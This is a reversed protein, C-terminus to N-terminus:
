WENGGCLILHPSKVVVLTTICEKIIEHLSKWFPWSTLSEIEGRWDESLASCCAVWRTRYYRLCDACCLRGCTWWLISARNLFHIQLQSSLPLEKKCCWPPCFKLSALFEPSGGVHLKEVKVSHCKPGSLEKKHPSQAHHSVLSCGPHSSTRSYTGVLPLLTPKWTGHESWKAEAKMAQGSHRSAKTM